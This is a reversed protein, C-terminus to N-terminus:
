PTAGGDDLAQIPAGPTNVAVLLYRFEVVQNTATAMRSYDQWRCDYQGALTLPTERGRTTGKGALPPWARTGHLLEGEHIRFAADITDTRRNVRWYSGDNTLAVVYGDDAYGDAVLAEVRVIDKVVDYRSIDQAGRNPLDYAEGSDAGLFGAALYKLEVATRREGLCVLLDLHIARRPRPELRLRATPHQLQIEWALAHQFDRESHFIPRQMSLQRLTSALDLDM